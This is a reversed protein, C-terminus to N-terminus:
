GNISRSYRIAGDLQTMLMECDAETAPREHMVRNKTVEEILEGEQGTSMAIHGRIVRLQKKAVMPTDGLVQFDHSVIKKNERESDRMTTRMTVLRWWDPGQSLKAATFIYPSEIDYAINSGIRVGGLMMDHTDSFEYGRLRKHGLFFNHVAFSRLVELTEPKVRVDGVEVSAGVQRFHTELSRSERGTFSM